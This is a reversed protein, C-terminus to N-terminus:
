DDEFVGLLDAVKGKKALPKEEEHSKSRGSLDDQILLSNPDWSLFLTKGVANSSRTKLFQFSIEGTARMKDTQKISIVNDATNIKSIGGAIMSQSHRDQDIASRNLQSATTMACNYEVAM